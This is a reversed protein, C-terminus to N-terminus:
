RAGTVAIVSSLLSTSAPPAIHSRYRISFADESADPRYPQHYPEHRSPLRLVNDDNPRTSRAQDRRALKPSRALLDCNQFCPVSAAAPNMRKRRRLESIRRFAPGFEHM